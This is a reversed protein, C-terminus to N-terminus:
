DQLYDRNISLRGVWFWSRCVENGWMGLWCSYTRITSVLHGYSTWGTYFLWLSTVSPWNLLAINAVRVGQHEIRQLQWFVIHTIGVLPCVRIDSQFVEQIVSQFFPSRHTILLSGAHVRCSLTLSRQYSLCERWHGSTIVVLSSLWFQKPGFVESGIFADEIGSGTLYREACRLLIKAFHFMELKPFLDFFTGPESMVIPINGVIQYVGEDCVIIM